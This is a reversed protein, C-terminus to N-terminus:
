VESFNGNQVGSYVKDDNSNDANTNIDTKSDDKNNTLQKDYIQSYDTKTM